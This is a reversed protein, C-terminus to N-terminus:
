WQQSSSIWGKLASSSVTVLVLGGMGEVSRPQLWSYRLLAPHLWKLAFWDIGWTFALTANLQMVAKQVAHQFNKWPYSQTCISSVETTGLKFFCVFVFVLHFFPIRNSKPWSCYLDHTHTRTHTHTHTHTYKLAPHPSLLCASPFVSPFSHQGVNSLTLCTKELLVTKPSFKLDGFGQWEFTALCGWSKPVQLLFLWELNARKKERQFAM